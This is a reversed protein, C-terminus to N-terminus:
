QSPESTAEDTALVAAGRGDSRRALTGTRPNALRFRDSKKNM